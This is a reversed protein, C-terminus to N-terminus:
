ESGNTLTESITRVLTQIYKRTELLQLMETLVTERTNEDGADWTTFLEALHEQSQRVRTELDQMSGQLQRDLTDRASNEAHQYEDLTEHLESVEMLVDPPVVNGAKGEKRGSLELMYHARSVPDKLTKYARTLYSSKSLSIDRELDSAQHYFDPHYRRSFTYYRQELEEVDLGLTRQYGFFHFYDTTEALPLIKGCEGCFDSQAVKEKCHWCSLAATM